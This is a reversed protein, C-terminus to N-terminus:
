ANSFNMIKGDWGLALSIRVIVCQYICSCNDWFMIMAKPDGNVARSNVAMWSLHEKQKNEAAAAATRNTTM